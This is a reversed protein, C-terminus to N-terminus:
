IFLPINQPNNIANVAQILGAHSYTQPFNGWQSGSTAHVDESFLSLHNSYKLIKTLNAIAKNKNNTIALAEIYWFACILFTADPTGFDDQHLYRYFLGNEASLAKELTSLLRKAKPDDPKLYHMTILQLLSSDLNKNGIAQYYLGTEEDYCNEIKEIAKSLNKEALDQLIEDNFLTAIKLASKCGAWHFLYTYCHFQKLGRFEWLGNDPENMTKEIMNMMNFILPLYKKRLDLTIKDNTFYPLLTTIVQGYIDNQIHEFAQNGIRVPKENLYGPLNLEYENPDRDLSIPHLPPWREKYKENILSLFHAYNIVVEKNKLLDFALLTYFSDRMWCFRYDWNRTSGPFEPLSTTAAAITAGTNFVHLNLALASRVVEHKFLPPLDLNNVWTEWYDITKLLLDEAEYKIDTWKHIENTMILYIPEDLIFYASLDSLVDTKSCYLYLDEDLLNFHICDEKVISSCQYNGYKYTPSCEIKILNTGQKPSIKRIFVHPRFWESNNQSLPAFDNIDFIGDNTEITTILINTDNLYKQSTSIIESQPLVQFNGGNNKDLLNGFLFSSDFHPWCLWSVNGLDNILALWSGNGIIGMAYKHVM